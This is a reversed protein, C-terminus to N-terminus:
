QLDTGREESLKSDSLQKSQKAAYEVLAEKLEINCYDLDTKSEADKVGDLSSGYKILLLAIPLFHGQCAVHLPTLGSKDRVTVDAGARLLELVVEKDGRGASKYLPTVGYADRKNIDSTVPLLLKCLEAIGKVYHLPIQGNSNPINGDAQCVNVLYNVVTIHGASTASMLPTWGGDDCKNVVKAGVEENWVKSNSIMELVSLHGSACATHFATREDEDVDTIDVHGKDLLNSVVDVKGASCAEHM